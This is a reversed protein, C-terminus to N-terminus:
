STVKKESKEARFIKRMKTKPGGEGMPERATGSEAGLKKRWPVECKKDQCVEKIM